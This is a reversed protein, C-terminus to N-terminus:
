RFRRREDGAEVGVFDAGQEQFLTGEEVLRVIQPFQGRRRADVGVAEHAGHAAIVVADMGAVVEQAAAMQRERDRLAGEVGYPHLARRDAARDAQSYVVLKM